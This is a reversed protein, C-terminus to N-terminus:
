SEAKLKKRWWCGEGICWREDDDQEIEDDPDYDPDTFVWDDYDTEKM